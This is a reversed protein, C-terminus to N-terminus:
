AARAPKILNFMGAIIDEFQQGINEWHFQPQHIYNYAQESLKIRLDKSNYLLNLKAVLDDHDTIGGWTNIGNTHMIWSATKVTFGGHNDVLEKLCSHDSVVQPCGTAMSEAVPLGFGDGMSILTNVDFSNYIVNLDSDSVGHAPNDINKTLILKNGLNFQASLDTIDFGVDHLFTHLYLKAEPKDEAFEAFARVLIDFRKRYQNRAVMGVVFADVPLGLEVRATAQYMPKYTDYNVGHYIQHLNKLQTGGNSQKLIDEAYHSYCVAADFSAILDIWEKKIPGADVPFYVMKKTYPLEFNRPKAEMYKSVVWPDNLFFIVDPKVKDAIGWLKFYGYLNEVSGKECPYIDYPYEEHDYPEGFTNIGLVTIKHNKSLQKLVNKSVVGFGTNVTPSDGVFLINM